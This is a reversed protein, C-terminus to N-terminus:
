CMIRWPPMDKTILYAAALAILGARIFSLGSRRLHGFIFGRFLTEEGIGNLVIAGILIWLWDSRLAFPVGTVRSVVPYFILMAASLIVAVLVARPNSRVWGMAGLAEVPRHAFTLREFALAFALMVAVVIFASWTQDIIPFLLTAGVQLILFMVVAGALILWITQRTTREPACTPSFQNEM